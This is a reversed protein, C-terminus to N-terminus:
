KLAKGSASPEVFSEVDCAYRTMEPKRGYRANWEPSMKDTNLLVCCTAGATQARLKHFRHCRFLVKPPM